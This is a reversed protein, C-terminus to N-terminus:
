QERDDQVDEGENMLAVLVGKDSGRQDLFSRIEQALEKLRQRRSRKRWNGIPRGLKEIAFDLADRIEQAQVSTGPTLFSPEVVRYRLLAGTVTLANRFLMEYEGTRNSEMIQM